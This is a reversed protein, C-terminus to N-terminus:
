SGQFGQRRTLNGDCVPLEQLEADVHVICSTVVPYGPSGSDIAGPCCAPWPFLLLLLWMDFSPAAGAALKTL